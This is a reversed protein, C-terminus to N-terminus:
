RRARGREAVAAGEEGGPFYAESQRYARTNRPYIALKVTLQVLWYRESIGRAFYTKDGRQASGPIGTVYIREM